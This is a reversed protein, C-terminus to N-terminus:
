DVSLMQSTFCEWKILYWDKLWILKLLVRLDKRLDVEPGKESLLLEHIEWIGSHGRYTLLRQLCTESFLPWHPGKTRGSLFCTYSPDPTQSNVCFCHIGSLQELLKPTWKQAPATTCLVTWPLSLQSFRLTPPRAVMVLDRTLFFLTERFGLSWFHKHCVCVFFNDWFHALPGWDWRSHGMIWRIKDGDWLHCSVIKCGCGSM